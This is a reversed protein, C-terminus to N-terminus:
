LKFIWNKIELTRYDDDIFNDDVGLIKIIDLNYSNDSNKLNQLLDISLDINYNNDFINNKILTKKRINLYQCMYDINYEPHYQFGYHM